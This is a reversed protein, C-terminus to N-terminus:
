LSDTLDPGLDEVWSYGFWKQHLSDYTGDGILVALAENIAQLRDPFNKRVAIGYYEANVEPNAIELDDHEALYLRTSPYDNIVVDLEGGALHLFAEGISHYRFILAGDIGRALDEGTTGQQVGVRQGRLDALDVITSDGSLVVLSQGTLYYPDSFDVVAERKPTITLASAVADIEGGTLATILREFPMERFEVEWGNLRGIERMLDIDFGAPGATDGCQFEFPAYNPDIGVVVRNEDVQLANEKQACAALALVLTIFILFRELMQIKM